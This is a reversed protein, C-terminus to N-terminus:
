RAQHICFLFNQWPKFNAKKDFSSIMDEPASLFKGEIDKSSFINQLESASIIKKEIVEVAIPKNILLKGYKSLNIANDIDKNKIEKESAYEKYKEFAQVAREFRYANHNAVGLMYYIDYPIANNEAAKELPTLMKEYDSSVNFLSKGYYYNQEPTLDILPMLKNYIEICKLYQLNNFYQKADSLMQNQEANPTKFLEKIKNPTNQNLTEEKMGLASVTKPKPIAKYEINPATKIEEQTFYNDVKLIEFTNEKKLVINQKLTFDETQNPVSVYATQENYNDCLLSFKYKIGPMLAMLYNGNNANSNYIGVVEDNNTNYVTISAAYSPISDNTTFHGKIISLPLSPKPMKIEYLNYSGNPSRRNSSFYAVNGTLDPMFMIDDYPSNIPYGLNVPTGWPETSSKRTSKFIDYGGMSNHGKSSFYMTNGDLTVYVYNEDYPTNINDGLSIPISWKDSGLLKNVFLDKGNKKDLGYSVQIMENQETKFMLLDDKSKEDIPSIFFKSKKLLKDVVLANPYSKEIKNIDMATKNIIQMNIQNEMLQKGNNCNEILRNINKDNIEKPTAKLKYQNLTEQAKGFNSWHQYAIGMYYYVDYPVSNSKSANLLYPLAVLKNANTKFLAVGKRYNYIPDDPNLHLLQSYMDIAASYNQNEFAKEALEPKKNEIEAQKKLLEDINAFDTEKLKRREVDIPEEEKKQYLEVKQKEENDEDYVTLLFLTPDKEEVFWSNISLDVRDNMTLLMKQTSIEGLVDTSAYNPIEVVKKIPAYGYTNIIFEYKVNPILIVLYNGTKPNTNYIGVLEDNSINYVSIEAKRMNPFGKVEFNGKVVCSSIGSNNTRAKYFTLKGDTNQRNSVFYYYKKLSDQRVQTANVHNLALFFYALIVTSLYKLNNM